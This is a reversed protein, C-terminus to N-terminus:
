QYIFLIICYPINQSQSRGSLMINKHNIWIIAYILVKNRKIALYYDMKHRHCKILGNMLQYVTPSNGTKGIIVKLETFLEKM